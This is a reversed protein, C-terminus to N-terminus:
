GQEENNLRKAMKHLKGDLIEELLNREAKLRKMMLDIHEIREHIETGKMDVMEAFEEDLAHNDVDIGFEALSKLQLTDGISYITENKWM